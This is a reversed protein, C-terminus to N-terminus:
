PICIWIPVCLIDLTYLDKPDLLVYHVHNLVKRSGQMSDHIQWGKLSDHGWHYMSLQYYIISLRNPTYSRCFASFLININEDQYTKAKVQWHLSEFPILTHSRCERKRKM